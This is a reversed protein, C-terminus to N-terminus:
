KNEMVCRVLVVDTLYGTCIGKITIEEGEIPAWRSEWTRTDMDCAVSNLMTGELYVTVATDAVNEISVVTGTVEVTKDLYTANAATEDADFAAILDSASISMDPKVDSIVETTRNFESYAYYGGAAVAVLVLLVIIKKM